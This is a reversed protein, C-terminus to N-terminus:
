YPGNRSRANGTRRGLHVAPLLQWFRYLRGSVGRPRASPQVQCSAWTWWAAARPGVSRRRGDATTGWGVVVSGDASVDLANSQSSGGPLDGLGQVAAASTWRFAQQGNSLQNFGVVASGDSSVERAFSDFGGGPLDGLPQMGGAQPWRYGQRGQASDGIGVVVSGDSNTSYAHAGFQSGPLAGLDQMGGAQTWRFAHDRTGGTSFAVGVLVQGNGSVDEAFSQTQGPLSGLGRVGDAATWRFGETGTDTEGMGSVVSGDASVGTVFSRIRGGPVDGM